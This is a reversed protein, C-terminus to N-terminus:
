RAGALLAWCGCMSMLAQVMSPLCNYHQPEHELKRSVQLERYGWTTESSTIVFAVLNRFVAHLSVLGATKVYNWIM